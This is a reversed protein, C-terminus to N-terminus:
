GCAPAPGGSFIRNILYVVDGINVQGDGNADAQGNCTPTSGGSFIWAILFTVDSINVAGSNDADGATVCCNLSGTPFAGIDARSGDPDNFAPDPDGADTAPSGPALLFNLSSTDLFLPDAM